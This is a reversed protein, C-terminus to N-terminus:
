FGAADVAPLFDVIAGIRHIVGEVPDGEAPDYYYLQGDATAVYRNTATYHRFYYGPGFQSATGSPSLLHPFRAEALNFLRDSNITQYWWAIVAAAPKKYLSWEWVGGGPHAEAEALDAHWAYPFIGILWPGGELSWITFAANYWRAQEELDVERPGLESWSNNGAWPPAGLETFMVPKAVATAFGRIVSVINFGWRDAYWGSVFADRSGHKAFNLRPYLSLGVLDVRDWFTVKLFENGGDELRASFFVAGANYGLKGSFVTRAAGIIELWQSRFAPNTTMSELENGLFLGTAGTEQALIALDVILAKYSAFWAGPNAPAIRQWNCCADGEGVLVLPKLYVQMGVAKADLVAKAITANSPTYPFRVVGSATLGDQGFQISLIVANASM